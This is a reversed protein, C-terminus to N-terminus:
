APKMNYVYFKTKTPFHGPEIKNTQKLQEFYNLFFYIVKM